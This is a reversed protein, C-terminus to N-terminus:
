NGFNITDISVGESCDDACNKDSYECYRILNDSSLQFTIHNTAPNKTKLIQECEDYLEDITKAPAGFNNAGVADGSEEYSDSPQRDADYSSYNRGSVADGTVFVTTESGFGVWSEFSTSYAYNGSVEASKEDWTARSEKLLALEDRNFPALGSGGCAVLATIAILLLTLVTKKPM